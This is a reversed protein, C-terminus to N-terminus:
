AIRSNSSGAPSSVAGQHYVGRRPTDMTDARSSRSSVACLFRGEDEFEEEEGADDDDDDGSYYAADDLQLQSLVLSPPTSRTFFDFLNSCSFARATKSSRGRSTERPLQIHAQKVNLGRGLNYVQIWVTSLLLTASVGMFFLNVAPEWALPQLFISFFVWAGATVGVAVFILAGMFVQSKQRSKVQCFCGLCALSALIVLPGAVLAQARVDKLLIGSHLVEAFVSCLDVLSVIALLTACVGQCLLFM